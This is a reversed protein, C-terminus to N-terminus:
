LGDVCPAHTMERQCLLFLGSLERGFREAVLYGICECNKKNQKNVREYFLLIDVEEKLKVSHM